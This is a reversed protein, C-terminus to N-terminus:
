RRRCRHMPEHGPHRDTTFRVLVEGPIRAAPSEVQTVDPTDAAKSVSTLGLFAVSVVALVALRLVAGTLHM